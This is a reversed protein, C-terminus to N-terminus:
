TSGSRGNTPQLCCESVDGIGVIIKSIGKQGAKTRQWNAVQAAHLQAALLHEAQTWALPGGHERFVASGPPLNAALDAADFLNGALAERLDM